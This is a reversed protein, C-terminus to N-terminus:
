MNQRSIQSNGRAALDQAKAIFQLDEIEDETFLRYGASATSECWLYTLGPKIGNIMYSYAPQDYM